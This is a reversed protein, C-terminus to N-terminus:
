KIGDYFNIVSMNIDDQEMSLILDEFADNHEKTLEGEIGLMKKKYMGVFQGLHLGKLPTLMMLLDGNFKEKFRSEKALEAELEKRQEEISVGFYAEISPIYEDRADRSKFAYRNDPQAIELWNLFYSFTKRKKDRKKNIASLEGEYISRDFYQSSAVFRFMQEMTSFGESWTKYSCGIFGLIKIMETSVVINKRVSGRDDRLPYLLGEHGFKLGLKHYIRGLLNGIDNYSFYAVSTDFNKSTCILDVQFGEFTFSIIGDNVLMSEPNFEQEVLPMIDGADAKVVYDVDGFDKKKRYYPVMMWMVGAPILIKCLRQGLRMTLQEFEQAELRKNSLSGGM